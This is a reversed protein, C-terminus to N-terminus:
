QYYCDRSGGDLMSLQAEKRCTKKWNGAVKLLLLNANAAAAACRGSEEEEEGGSDFKMM